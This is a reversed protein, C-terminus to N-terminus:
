SNNKELIDNHFCYLYIANLMKRHLVKIMEYLIHSMVLNDLSVLFSNVIYRINHQFTM